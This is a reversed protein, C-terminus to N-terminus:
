LDAPKLSLDDLMQKKVKFVEGRGKVNVYVADEDASSIRLEVVRGDKYTLKAEVPPKALRSRASAPASALVEDARTEFPDILRSTPADKDKKDAPERIVWRDGTKEAVIRGSSNKLEVKSLNNRDLKFLEKNRLEEPKINLKEYLPLGIRVIEPRGSVKAYHVDEKTGVALTRESGDNLQATLTIAPKDLGYKAADEKTASIFEDTEGATIEQLFSNIASDDVGADFPKKLVWGEAEKVVSLEGNENTLSISKIDFQSVGLVAKDRLENFSKDSGTLVAAPLLVVETADGIQAYVSLDSYDKSGLRLKGTGGDKLTIELLVAPEELGMSKTDASSSLTREIRASTLEGALSDLAAQDARATAPQTIVWNGDHNELRVTEGARTISLASIDDKNFSFAPKTEEATKEDRPKGEKIELFYVAVGIAVALLSLILTARKM